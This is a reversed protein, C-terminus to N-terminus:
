RLSFIRIFTNVDYCMHAITHEDFSFIRSEVSLSFSISIPLTLHGIFFLALSFPESSGQFNWIWCYPYRLRHLRFRFAPGVTRWSSRRLPSYLIVKLFTGASQPLIPASFVQRSHTRAPRMAIVQASGYHYARRTGSMALVAARVFPSTLHRHAYAM